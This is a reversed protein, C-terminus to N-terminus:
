KLFRVRKSFFYEAQKVVEKESQEPKFQSIKEFFTAVRGFYLCNLVKIVSEKDDSEQYVSLLDYVIRAWLDLDITVDGSQYIEVLGQYVSESLINKGLKLCKDFQEKLIERFPDPDTEIDPLYTMKNGELIPVKNLEKQQKVKDINELILEFLTKSVQDFMADLGKTQIPKHSKTGLNVQAVKLGSFIANLTMFIDIGFRYVAEPWEQKLWYDVMKGSFAFDGGIPQRIDYGILGYILPYVLHNTITGDNELRNYYPTVYDYGDLVSNVMKKIWIPEVSKLDSDLTIGVKADLQQVLSFLNHLGYGKGRVEGDLNLYIKSIDGKTNFFIEETGDTSRSDTNVIVCDKDSFYKKLGLDIQRTVFGIREAENYSPIGVVIEAKKIKQPNVIIMSSEVLLGGIAVFIM